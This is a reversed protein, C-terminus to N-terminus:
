WLWRPVETRYQTWAEGHTAALYPEEGWIVRLHFALALVVGYIALASSRFGIAWGAIMTLVAVYMPNRSFRYAGDRVLAKPPDWPALTGRGRVLFDRVCWLLLASGAGLVVGGPVGLHATAGRPRLLFWPVVLAVTGPLAVFAGLARLALWRGRPADSM